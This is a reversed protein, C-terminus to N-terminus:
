LDRGTIHIGMKKLDAKIENCLNLNFGLYEPPIVGYDPYEKIHRAIVAGTYATMRAMSTIRRKKDYYDLVFYRKSRAKRKIEIVLISIDEIGGETLRQKLYEMTFDRVKIWNGKFRVRKDSFLGCDIIKKFIEAHGPYRITKEEMDRAGKITKLLTRLGDTYFCELKGIEPITFEEIGSLPPVKIVRFEKMIRAPRSYEEILDVLSWTIRYNFPPVPKQPIGGVLIRLTDIGCFRQYAEGVLINSLGPAFGADPVIRVKLRKADKNLLFPDEPLYSMDVIDRHARLACEMTRFGLSSPLAGVIIDFNKLFSLIRPATVDFEMTRIGPIKKIMNLNEKNIDLITVENDEKLAMAAVRGQMGCGLICVKM